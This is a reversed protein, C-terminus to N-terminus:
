TEISSPCANSSARRGDERDARREREQLRAIASHLAQTAIEPSLIRQELATLIAEDAADMPVEIRNTCVCAGRQHYSNCGYRYKRRSGSSYSKM